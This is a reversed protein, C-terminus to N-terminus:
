CTVFQSVPNGFIDPGHPKDPIEVIIKQKRGYGRISQLMKGTATLNSRGPTTQNSLRPAGKPKYTGIFRSGDKRTGTYFKLKGKRVKKYSDALKKLRKQNGTDAVGYGLRVRKIIQLSAKKGLKNTFKPSFARKVSDNITQSIRALTQEPTEIAM